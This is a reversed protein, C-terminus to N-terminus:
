SLERERRAVDSRISKARTSTEAYQDWAGRWAALNTNLAAALNELQDLTSRLREYAGNIDGFPNKGNEHSASLYNAQVAVAKTVDALKRYHEQQHADLVRVYQRQHDLLRLTMAWERSRHELYGYLETVSQSSGDVRPSMRDNRTNRPAELDRRGEDNGTPQVETEASAAISPADATETVDTM